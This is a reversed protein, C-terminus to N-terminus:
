VTYSTLVCLEPVTWERSVDDRGQSTTASIAGPQGLRQGDWGM